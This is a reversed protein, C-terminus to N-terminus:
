KYYVREGFRLDVYSLRKLDLKADQVARRLKELQADLENPVLLIKAADTLEVHLEQAEQVLAQISCTSEIGTNSDASTKNANELYGSVNTNTRPSDLAEANEEIPTPTRELCSFTPIHIASVSYGISEVSNKIQELLQPIDSRVLVSGLTLEQENDNILQVLNPIEEEPGYKRIATGEEDVGFIDNGQKWLFSPGREEVTVHIINPFVKTVRITKFSISDQYAIQIERSLWSPRLLLYNGVPFIGLTRRRQVLDNVRAALTSASFEGAYVQVERIRFLPSYLILYALLVFVGTLELLYLRYRFRARGQEAGGPFYPNRRSLTERSEPLRRRRRRFALKM